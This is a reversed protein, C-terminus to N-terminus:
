KNVEEILQSLYFRMSNFERKIKVTLLYHPLELTVVLLTTQIKQIFGGKLM